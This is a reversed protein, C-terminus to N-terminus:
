GLQAPDLSRVLREKDREGVRSGLHQGELAGGGGHRKDATRNRGSLLLVHSIVDNLNPTLADGRTGQYILAVVACRDLPGGPVCSAAEASTGSIM